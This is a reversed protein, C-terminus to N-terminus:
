RRRALGSQEQEAHCATRQITHMNTSRNTKVTIFL